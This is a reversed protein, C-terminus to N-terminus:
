NFVIVLDRRNFIRNFNMHFSVSHFKIEKKMSIPLCKVKVVIPKDKTELSHQRPGSGDSSRLGALGASGASGVSAAHGGGTTSAATSAGSGTTNTAAEVNDM